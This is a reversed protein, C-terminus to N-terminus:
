WLFYGLILVKSYEQQQQTSHNFFRVAQCQAWYSSYPGRKRDIESM